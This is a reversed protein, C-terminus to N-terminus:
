KQVRNPENTSGIYTMELMGYQFGEGQLLQWFPPNLECKNAQVDRKGSLQSWFSDFARPRLESISYDWIEGRCLFNELNLKQEEMNKQFLNYFNYM